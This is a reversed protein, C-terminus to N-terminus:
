SRPMDDAPRKGHKIHAPQAVDTFAQIIRMAGPAEVIAHCGILAEPSWPQVDSAHGM